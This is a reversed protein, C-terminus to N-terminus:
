VRYSYGSAQFYSFGPIADQQKYDARYFVDDFRFHMFPADTILRPRAYFDYEVCGGTVRKFVRYMGNNITTTTGDPMGGFNVIEMAEPNNMDFYEGYLVPRGNATLAVGYIDSKFYNNGLSDRVIADDLIVPILDGDMPLAQNAM